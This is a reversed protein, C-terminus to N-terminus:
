CNDRGVEGKAKEGAKGQAAISVATAKKTRNGEHAM